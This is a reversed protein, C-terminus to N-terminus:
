LSLVLVIFLCSHMHSASVISDSSMFPMVGALARRVWARVTDDLEPTTLDVAAPMGHVRGGTILEVALSAAAGFACMGKEVNILGQRVKEANTSNGGGGEGASSCSGGVETQILRALEMMATEESNMIEGGELDLCALEAWVLQVLRALSMSFVASTPEGTQPLLLVATLTELMNRCLLPTSRGSDTLAERLCDTLLDSMTRSEVFSKLARGIATLYDISREYGNEEAMEVTQKAKYDREAIYSSVSYAFAWCGATLEKLGCSDINGRYSELDTHSSLHPSQSLEFVSRVFSSVISPTSEEQVEESITLKEEVLARLWSMVSESEYATDCAREESVSDQAGECAPILLNAVRKCLPCQLEGASLDLATHGLGGHLVAMSMSHEAKQVTTAFYTAYCAEHLAHGCCTISIGCRRERHRGASPCARSLQAFGLYGLPSESAERCIICELRSDTQEEAEEEEEDTEDDMAAMFANAQSSISALAKARAAARRSESSSVSAEPAQRVTVLSAVDQDLAAAMNVVWRAGSSVCAESGWSTTLLSQLSKVLSVESGFGIPAVLSSFLQVRHAHSPPLLATTHVALTLLHLSRILLISSCTDPTAPTLASAIVRRIFRLMAADTLVGSRLEAYIPHPPAPPGVVPAAVPEKGESGRCSLEALVKHYEARSKTDSPSSECATLLAAAESELESCRSHSPGSASPRREAASQHSPASLHFFCPDYESWCAPKLVYKVPELGVGPRRDAIDTLMAELLDPGANDSRTVMAVSELAESYTCPAHALQHVMERRISMLMREDKDQGAYSHQIECEGQPPIPLETTFVILLHLMDEALLVTQTLTFEGEERVEEKMFLDWCGFRHMVHNVFLGVKDNGPYCLAGFQLMYIDPDRFLRCFPPESYNMLQDSMSQGNRRWMGVRAQAAMVLISLPLEVLGLASANSALGTVLNSLVPCLSPSRSSETISHSFFRLLPAHFSANALMESAWITTQTVSGNSIVDKVCLTPEGLFNLNWDFVADAIRQLMDAVSNSCEPPATRLWGLLHDFASCLSINVNFSNMWDRSEFRHMSLTILPPTSMCVTKASM